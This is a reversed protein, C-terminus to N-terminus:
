FLEKKKRFISEALKAFFYVFIIKKAVSYDHLHLNGKASGMILAIPTTAAFIM